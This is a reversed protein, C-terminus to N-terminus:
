AKQRTFRLAKLMWDPLPHEPNRGKLHIYWGLKKLLPIKHTEVFEILTGQLEIYAFRGAAEGMDFSNASDVTFPYGLDTCRKKLADMGHIDFCLHIFGLDGWDRGEFIRQPIRDLSQVLEIRTPGILRSFAGRRPTSHSLVVRRIEGAGGPLSSCAPDIGRFDEVVIDYGLIKQFLAVAEDMDAVGLVAGMPGGLAHGTAYFKYSDELAKFYNGFPDQFFFYQRGDAATYISGPENGSKALSQHLGAIDRCRMIGAFIGLDGLQPLTSPAQPIRQTYQWIEFGGGGQLNIALIAHRSRVEGSTYPLMLAAEAAEEFMKVDMGLNKLYWTFSAQVDRVGIGIQQIGSIIYEM